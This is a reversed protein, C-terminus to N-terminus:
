WRGFPDGNHVLCLINARVNMVAVFVFVAFILGLLALGGHEPRGMGSGNLYGHFLGVIVALMTTARLSLKADAIGTKVILELLDM